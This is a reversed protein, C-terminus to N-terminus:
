RAGSSVVFIPQDHAPDFVGVVEVRQERDPPIVREPSLGLQGSGLGVDGVALVGDDFGNESVEVAPGPACARRAEAGVQRSGACRDGVGGDAGGLGAPPAGRRLGLSCCQAAFDDVDRGAQGSRLSTQDTCRGLWQGWTLVPECQPAVDACGRWQGVGQGGGALGLWSVCSFSPLGAAVGM